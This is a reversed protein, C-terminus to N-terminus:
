RTVALHEAHGCFLQAPLGRRQGTGGGQEGKGIYHPFLLPLTRQCGAEVINVRIVGEARGGPLLGLPGHLLLGQGQRQFLCPRSLPLQVPQEGAVQQVLADTGGKGGPILLAGEEPQVAGAGGHPLTQGQGGHCQVPAKPLPGPHHDGGVEAGRLPLVAGRQLIAALASGGGLPSHGGGSGDEQGPLTGAGVEGMDGRAPHHVLPDCVGVVHSRGHGGGGIVGDAGVKLVGPPLGAEIIEDDGAVQPLQSTLQEPLQKLLVPHIQGGPVGVAAQHDEVQLPLVDM